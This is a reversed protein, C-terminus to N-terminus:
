ARTVGDVCRRGRILFLHGARSGAEEVPLCVSLNFSGTERVIANASAKPRPSQAEEKVHSLTLPHRGGTRKTETQKTKAYREEDRDALARKPNGRNWRDRSKVVLYNSYFPRKRRM